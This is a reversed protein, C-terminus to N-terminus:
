CFMLMVVASCLKAFETDKACSASFTLSGAALAGVVEYQLTPDCRM